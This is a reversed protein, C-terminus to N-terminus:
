ERMDDANIIINKHYILIAGTIEWDYSADSQTEEETVGSLFNTSERKLRGRPKQFQTSTGAGVIYLYISHGM